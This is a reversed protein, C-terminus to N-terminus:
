HDWEHFEKKRVELIETKKEVSGDEAFGFEKQRPDYDDPKKTSEFHPQIGISEFKGTKPGLHEVVINGDEDEYEAYPDDFRAHIGKKPFFEHTGDPHEFYLNPSLEEEPAQAVLPEIIESIKEIKPDIPVSPNVPGEKGFNPSENTM